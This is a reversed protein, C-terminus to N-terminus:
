RSTARGFRASWSRSARTTRSADGCRTESRVPEWWLSAAPPNGTCRALEKKWIQKSRILRSAAIWRGDPSVRPHLLNADDHTLREPAGGERPIRFLQMREDALAAYVLFRGDPTWDLGGYTRSEYGILRRPASGDPRVLWIEREGRGTQAELAIEDGDPSWAPMTASPVEEPLPLRELSLVRGDEPDITAIWPKSVGAPGGREWTDFVIRRGDPSWDPMGVEWGFDTIRIEEATPTGPRRLYVDDTTGAGGYSAVPGSSRHSHYAIWRGDPSWVPTFDEHPGSVLSRTTGVRGSAPDLRASAADMSLPGDAGGGGRAFAIREGDPSWVPLIANEAVIRGEGGDAPLVAVADSHLNRTWLLSGGRVVPAFDSAPGAVVVRAEGSGPDIAYIDLDRDADPDHRREPSTLVSDGMALFVSEGTPSVAISNHGIPVYLRERVTDVEETDPDIRLLRGAGEGALVMAYLTEGGPGWATALIPHGLPIAATEGALRVFLTDGRGLYWATGEAGPGWRPAANPPLGTYEYRDAGPLFWGAQEGRSGYLAVDGDPLFRVGFVRDLDNPPAVSDLNASRGTERDIAKRFRWDALVLWRGDPSLEGHVRTNEFWTATREEYLLTANEQGSSIAPVFAFLLLMAVISRRM